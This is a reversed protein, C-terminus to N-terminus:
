TLAYLEALTRIIDASEHQVRGNQLLAPVKAGEGALADLTKRAEPDKQVNRVKVADEIHLNRLAKLTSQCFRCGDRVFLTADAAVTGKASPAPLQKGAHIQKALELLDNINRKGPPGVSSAHRVVGDVDIIVTARDTIGANELYVGYKAAVAGRPHFDSLLPFSM